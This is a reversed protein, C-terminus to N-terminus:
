QPATRAGRSQVFYGTVLVALSFLCVGPWGWLTWCQAGGYSGLAGGVFYSFMYVTNLRGRAGPDIGYIRTQNAVHGSQVGLDLLIVGAILAIMHYGLALMLVWAVLSIVLSLRITVRPGRADTFRGVPRAGAAGAAGIVGFLGAMQAGYHYPPTSLLFVLTTWFASFACFLIAGLLSSERLLPQERVLKWISALLERWTLSISPPSTPLGVRIMLSLVVMFGASIWYVSRWGFQAGIFGSFTRALLIGFLLGGIVTGVVHGREEPPALHAAFPVIVHVAAGSCGIVMMALSLAIASPAMAAAILGFFSVGILMLILRRRERVDGLPVFLFMGVATGAQGLMAIIGVRGASIGFTRAIEALLPHVYYMNAVIVGASIAMLAVVSRQPKVSVLHYPSRLHQNFNILRHARLAFYQVDGGELPGTANRNRLRCPHLRESRM